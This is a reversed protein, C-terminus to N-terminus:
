YSKAAVTSDRHLQRTRGRVVTFATSSGAKLTRWSHIFGGNNYNESNMLPGFMDWAEGKFREMQMQKQTLTSGVM